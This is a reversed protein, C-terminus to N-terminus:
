SFVGGESAYWTTGGNYTRLIVETVTGSSFSPASNAWKVSSPFNLGSNGGTVVLVISVSYANASGSSGFTSDWNISLTQGNATLKFISAEGVNIQNTVSVIREAYGALGRYYLRPAVLSINSIDTTSATYKGLIMEYVTGDDNLDQQTLATSYPQTILTIPDNANTLDIRIVVAMDVSGSGALTAAIQTQDLWWQRGCMFGWGPGVRLTNNNVRSINCSRFFGDGLMMRYLRGDEYPSVNSSEFQVLKIM